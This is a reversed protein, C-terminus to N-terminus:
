SGKVDSCLADETNQLRLGCKGLFLQLFFFMLYSHPNINLNVCDRQVCSAERWSDCTELCMKSKNKINGSIGPPQDEQSLQVKCDLSQM